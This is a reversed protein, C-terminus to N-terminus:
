IAVVSSRRSAAIAGLAPAGSLRRGALPIAPLCYGRTALRAHWGAPGVQASGWPSVGPGSAALRVRGARERARRCWLVSFFRLHM